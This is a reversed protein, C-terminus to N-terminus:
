EQCRDIAKTAEQKLILKNPLLQDLKQQLKNIPEKLEQQLSQSFSRLTQSSDKIGTELTQYLNEVEQQIVEIFTNAEKKLFQISRIRNPNDVLEQSFLQLMKGIENQITQQTKKFQQQLFQNSSQLSTSSEAVEQQLIKQWNEVEQYVTKSYINISQYLERVWDFTEIEVLQIVTASNDLVPKNHQSLFDYTKIQSNFVQFVRGLLFRDGLIYPFLDVPNIYHFIAVNGRYKSFEDESIGISNFTVLSHIYDSAIVTLQQGVKGGLSQGVIDPKNGQIAQKKLWEVVGAKQAAHLQRDSQTLIIDPIDRYPFFETPFAALSGWNGCGRIVLVPVNNSSTPVLGFAYFGSKRDNFIQEIQYENLLIEGPYHHNRYVSYDNGPKALQEYVQDCPHRIPQQDSISM